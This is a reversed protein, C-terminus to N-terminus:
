FEPDPVKMSLVKVNRRAALTILLQVVGPKGKVPTSSYSLVEDGPEVGAERLKAAERAKRMSIGTRTAKEDEASIEILLGGNTRVLDFLAQYSLNGDDEDLFETLDTPEM